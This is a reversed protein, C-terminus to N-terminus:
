KEYIEDRIIVLDRARPERMVYGMEFVTRALVKGAMLGVSDRFGVSYGMFKGRLAHVHTTLKRPQLLHM